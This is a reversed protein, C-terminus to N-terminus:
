DVVKYGLQRLLEDQSFVAWLTAIPEDSQNSGEADSCGYAATTQGMSTNRSIVLLFQNALEEDPDVELEFIGSKMNPTDIISNVLKAQKM